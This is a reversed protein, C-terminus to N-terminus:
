LNALARADDLDLDLDLTQKLTDVLWRAASEGDKWPSYHGFSPVMVARDNDNDLNGDRAELYSTIIQKEVDPACQGISWPSGVAQKRAPMVGARHIAPTQLWLSLLAPNWSDGAQILPCAVGYKTGGSEGLAVLEASVIAGAAEAAAALAVLARGRLDSDKTSIAGSVWSNFVLAIRRGRSLTEERRMWPKPHDAMARGMHIRAGTPQFEWTGGMGDPLIPLTGLIASNLAREALWPCGATLLQARTTGAPAKDDLDSMDWRSALSGGDSLALTVVSDWDQCRAIKVPGTPHSTEWIHAAALGLLQRRNDDHHQTTDIWTMM